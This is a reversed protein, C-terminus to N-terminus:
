CIFPKRVKDTVGEVQRESTEDRMIVCSSVIIPDFSGPEDGMLSIIVASFPIQRRTTADFFIQSWDPCAALKMATITEGIIQILVRCQRVYNVSPLEEPEERSFIAYLTAINSPIASPPTGHVLLDCIAETVWLPWVKCSGRRGVRKEYQLNRKSSKFGEVMLKYEDLVIQQSANSKLVTTLEDKMIGMKENASQLKDLRKDALNTSKRMQTQAQRQQQIAIAVEGCLDDNIHELLTIYEKLQEEKTLAKDIQEQILNRRRHKEDVIRSTSSRDLEDLRKRWHESQESLKKSTNDLEKKIRFIKKDHAVKIENITAEYERDRKELTAKVKEEHNAEQRAHIAREKRVSSAARDREAIANNDAAACKKKAEEMMEIADKSLQRADKMADDIIINSAKREQRLEQGLEKIHTKLNTITTTHKEVEEELRLKSKRSKALRATLCVRDRKVKTIPSRVKAPAIAARVQQANNNYNSYDFHSIKQDKTAQIVRSFKRRKKHLGKMQQVRAAKKAEDADHVTATITTTTIASAATSATTATTTGTTAATATVTATATTSSSSDRAAKKAEDADHVTATTTTTNVSAATTATTTGTTGTTGTTAATATTTSSSDGVGGEGRNDGFSDGEGLEETAEM